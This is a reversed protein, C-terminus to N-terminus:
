NNEIQKNSILYGILFFLGSIIYMLWLNDILTVLVLGLSPIAIRLKGLVENRLLVEEDEFIAASSKVKFSTQTNNVDEIVDVIKISDQSNKFAIKDNIIVEEQKALKRIIVLSNSEILPEINSESYNYVFYNFLKFNPNVKKVTLFLSLSLAIVGLFILVNVVFGNKSKPKDEEDKEESKDFVALTDTESVKEDDEINVKSDIDKLNNQINVVDAMTL